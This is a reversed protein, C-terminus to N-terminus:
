AIIVKHIIRAFEVFLENKFRKFDGFAASAKLCAKEITKAFMLEMWFNYNWGFADRVGFDVFDEQM